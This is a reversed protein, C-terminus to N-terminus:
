QMLFNLPPPPIIIVLCHWYLCKSFYIALDIVVSLELKFFLQFYLIFVPFCGLTIEGQQRLLYIFKISIAISLLSFLIYLNIKYFLPHILFIFSYVWFASSKCSVFIVDYIIYIVLLIVDNYVYVIWMLEEVTKELVVKFSFYYYVHHM